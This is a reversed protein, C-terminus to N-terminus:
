TMREIDINYYTTDNYTNININVVVSYLTSKILSHIESLPIGLM